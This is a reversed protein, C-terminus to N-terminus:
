LCNRVRGEHAKTCAGRMFLPLPMHLPKSRDRSPAPVACSNRFRTQPVRWIQEGSVISSWRFVADRCSQVGSCSRERLFQKGRVSASWFCNREPVVASERFAAQRSLSCEQFTNDVAAALITCFRRRDGLLRRYLIRIPARLCNNLLFESLANLQVEVLVTLYDNSDVVGRVYYFWEMVNNRQLSERSMDFPLNESDVVGRANYLLEAGHKAAFVIPFASRCIRQISPATASTSGSGSAM